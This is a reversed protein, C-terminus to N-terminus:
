DGTLLSRNVLKAKCWQEGHAWIADVLCVRWIFKPTQAILSSINSQKM